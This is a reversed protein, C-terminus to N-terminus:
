DEKAHNLTNTRIARLIFIAGIVTALLTTYTVFTSLSSDGVPIPWVYTHYNLMRYPIERWKVALSVCPECLDTKSVRHDRLRERCGLLLKPDPVTADVYGGTEHAYRYRQHLPIMLNTSSSRVSACATVNQRGAKEAFLEIDTEGVSCITSADKRRLEAIEDVNVYLASPLEMYIAAQCNDIILDKFYVHYILTRHFGSGEVNLEIEAEIGGCIQACRMWLILTAIIRSYNPASVHVTM